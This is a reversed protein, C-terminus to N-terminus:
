QRLAVVGTESDYEYKSFDIDMRILHQIDDLTAPYNGNEVRYMDIAKKLADLNAIDGAHQGRQYTDILADGYDDFATRPKDDCGAFVALCFIIFLATLISYKIIM